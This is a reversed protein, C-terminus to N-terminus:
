LAGWSLLAIHRGDRAGYRPGANHKTQEGQILSHLLMGFVCVFDLTPKALKLSCIELM